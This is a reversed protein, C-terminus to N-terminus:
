TSQCNQPKHNPESQEENLKTVSHPPRLHSLVTETKHRGPASSTNHRGIDFEQSLILFTIGKFSYHIWMVMPVSHFNMQDVNCEENKWWGRRSVRCLSWWQTIMLCPRSRSGTERRVSWAWSRLAPLPGVDGDRAWTGPDLIKTVFTGVETSTIDVHHSCVRRSILALYVRFNNM